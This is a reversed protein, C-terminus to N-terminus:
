AGAPFLVQLISAAMQAFLYFAGLWNKLQGLSTTESTEYEVSKQTKQVPSWRLVLLKKEGM